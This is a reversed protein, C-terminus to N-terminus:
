DRNFYISDALRILEERSLSGIIWFHINDRKYEISSTGDNAIFLYVDQGEIAITELKGTDEQYTSSWKEDLRITRMTVTLSREDPGIYIAASSAKSGDTFITTQIQDLKYNEPVDFHRPVTFTLHKAAEDWTLFTSEIAQTVVYPFVRLRQKRNARRILEAEVRRWSAEPDPVFETEQVAQKFAKDFMEDFTDQNLENVGNAPM